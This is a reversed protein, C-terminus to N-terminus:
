NRRLVMSQFHLDSGGARTEEIPVRRFCVLEFLQTAVAQIVEDSRYSFFRSLVQDDNSFTGEREAGGYQGLFFLGGPRLLARIDGLVGPLDAKPAHLLCNFAYVADFSGEPFDLSLFDMVHAVLGKERCLRVMEPSLDTCTVELGSGQFFKSDKGPGAGIELLTKKNEEQLLTLFRQREDLKWSALEGGEREEATRDYYTRLDATVREYTDLDDPEPSM